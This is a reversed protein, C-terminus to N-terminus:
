HSATNKDWSFLLEEPIFLILSIEKPKTKMSFYLTGTTEYDNHDTVVWKSPEVPNERETVLLAIDALNQSILEPNQTSKLVVEVALSEKPIWYRPHVEIKTENEIKIQKEFHLQERKPGSECGVLALLSFLAIIIYKAM